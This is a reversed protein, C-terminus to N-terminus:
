QTKMKAMRSLINASMQMDRNVQSILSIKVHKNGMHIDDIISNIKM